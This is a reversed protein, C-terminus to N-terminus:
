RGYPRSASTGQLRSSSPHLQWLITYRPWVGVEFLLVLETTVCRGPLDFVCFPFLMVHDGLV